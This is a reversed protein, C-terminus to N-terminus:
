IKLLIVKPKPAWGSRSACCHRRRTQVPLNILFASFQKSSILEWAPLWRTFIYLCIEWGFKHLFCTYLFIVFVSIRSIWVQFSDACTFLRRHNCSGTIQVEFNQRTSIHLGPNQRQSKHCHTLLSITNFVVKVVQHLWQYMLNLKSPHFPLRNWGQYTLQYPIKEIQNHNIQITFKM